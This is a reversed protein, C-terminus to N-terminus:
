QRPGPPTAETPEPNREIRFDAIFGPDGEVRCGLATLWEGVVTNCHHDGSYASPDHVFTLGNKPNFLSKEAGAAFARDLDELVARAREREVCVADARELNLTDHLQEPDPDVDGLDRRGLAGPNTGLLVAPARWLSDEGAAFWRWEGYAYEVLRGDDRPLLLSSHRGYDAIVVTVPDAVTSPPHVVTTGCGAALAAGALAVVTPAVHRTFALMRLSRATPLVFFFPARTFRAGKLSDSNPFKPNGAAAAPRAIAAAAVAAAAAV